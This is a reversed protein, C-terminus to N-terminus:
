DLAAVAHLLAGDPTRAFGDIDRGIQVDDHAENMTTEVIRARAASQAASLYEALTPNEPAEMIAVRTANPAFEKLLELWKGSLSPVYAPFGTVNGEPRALNTVLGNRVPDSGSAFVIPITATEQKVAIAEPAAAAFILDPARRVIEAAYARRREDVAGVWRIDLEINRGENWGLKLLSERFAAFSAQGAFDNEAGALLVGIRRRRGPQQARAALPWATVVGGVLTIFERRKM